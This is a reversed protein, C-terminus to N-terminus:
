CGSIDPYKILPAFDVRWIDLEFLSGDKDLNLSVSLGVGDADRFTCEALAEGFLPSCKGQWLFRIGGMFGDNMDQVIATDLSLILRDKQRYDRLMYKVLALEDGRLDRM